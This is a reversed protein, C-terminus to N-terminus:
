RTLRRAVVTAVVVVSAGAAVALAARRKAKVGERFGDVAAALQERETAIESRIQAETRPDAAV